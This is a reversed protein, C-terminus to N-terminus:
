IANKIIDEIQLLDTEDDDDDDESVSEMAIDVCKSVEDDTSAYQKCTYESFIRRYAEEEANTIEKTTDEFSKTDRPVTITPESYDFHLSLEVSKGNKSGSIEVAEIEHSWGRIGVLIRLDSARLGDDEDEEDDYEDADESDDDDDDEDDGDFCKVLDKVEQMDDVAGSFAKGKEQDAKFEFYSLGNETKNVKGDDQVVLFSNEDYADAIKEKFNSSKLVAAKENICDYVKSSSENYEELDSKSIKIWKDDVVEIISDFVEELGKLLYRVDTEYYYASNGDEDDDDTKTSNMIATKADALGGVRLYIGDDGNYVFDTKLTIEGYDKTAITLTGDDLSASNGASNIKTKFSYGKVSNSDSDTTKLSMEAQLTEAAIFKELGDALSKEASEHYNLYLVLGIIGGVLLVIVIIIAIVLGTKKKKPAAATATNAAAAGMAAAVPAATATDAALVAESAVDSATTEAAPAAEVNIAPESSVLPEEATPEAQLAPETPNEALPADTPTATEETSTMPTAMPEPAPTAPEIRETTVEELKEDTITAGMNMVPNDGAESLMADIEAALATNETKEEPVKVESSIVPVNEEANPAAGFNNPTDAINDKPADEKNANDIPAAGAATSGFDMDPSFNEKNPDNEENMKEERLAQENNFPISDAGLDGTGIAGPLLEEKEEPNKAESQPRLKNDEDHVLPNEIVDEQDSIFEEEAIAEAELEEKTLEPMAPVAPTETAQTDQETPLTSQEQKDDSDM